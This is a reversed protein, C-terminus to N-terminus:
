HLNVVNEFEVRHMIHWYLISCFEIVLEQKEKLRALILTCNALMIRPIELEWQYRETSYWPM